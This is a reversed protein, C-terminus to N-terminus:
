EQKPVQEDKVDAMKLLEDKVDQSLDNVTGIRPKNLEEMKARDRVQKKAIFEPIFYAKYKGKRANVLITSNRVYNETLIRAQVEPKSIERVREAEKAREELQKLRAKELDTTESNAVLNNDFGFPQNGNLLSLSDQAGLLSNNEEM